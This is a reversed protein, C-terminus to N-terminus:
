LANDLRKAELLNLVQAKVPEHREASLGGDGCGIADILTSCRRSSRGPGTKHARHGVLYGSDMGLGEIRGAKQRVTEIDFGAILEVQLIPVYRSIENQARQDVM